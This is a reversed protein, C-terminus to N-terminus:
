KPSAYARSFSAMKELIQRTEEPNLAEFMRQYKEIKSKMNKDDQPSPVMPDLLKQYKNM